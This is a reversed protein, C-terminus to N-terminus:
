QFNTTTRFLTYILDVVREIYLEIDNVTNDYLIKHCLDDILLNCYHLFIDSDEASKFPISLMSLINKTHEIIANDHEKSIDAIDKDLLILAARDDHYQKSFKNHQELMLKLFEKFLNRIAEADNFNMNRNKIWFDTTSPLIGDNNKEVALLYIDKKDEFYSYVSGTAVNAEKAIDATTINFYGKQNFLKFAADLIKDYKELSRKQTPKRTKREM